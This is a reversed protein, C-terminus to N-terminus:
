SARNLRVLPSKVCSNTSVGEMCVGGSVGVNRYSTKGQVCVCCAVPVHGNALSRKSTVGHGDAQFREKVVGGRAVGALSETKLGEVVLCGAFAIVAETPIGEKAVYGAVVVSGHTM